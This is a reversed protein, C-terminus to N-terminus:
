LTWEWMTTITDNTRSNTVGLNTNIIIHRNRNSPCKNKKYSVAIFRHFSNYFLPDVDSIGVANNEIRDLANTLLPDFLFQGSNLSSSADQRLEDVCEEESSMISCIKQPLKKMTEAMTTVDGYDDVATGIMAALAVSRLAIAAAM